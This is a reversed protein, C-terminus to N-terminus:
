SIFNSTKFIRDWFTLILGFNTSPNSHHGIHYTGWAFFETISGGICPNHDLRSDSLFIEYLYHFILLVLGQKPWVVTVLLLPLTLTIWIDLSEQISGFFFLLNSYHFSRQRGTQMYYLTHHARHWLYLQNGPLAWHALRHIAYALGLWALLAVLLQLFWTLAPM